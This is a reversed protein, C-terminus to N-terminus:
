QRRRPADPVLLIRGRLLRRRTEDSVLIQNIASPLEYRVRCRIAFAVVEFPPGVVDKPPLSRSPDNGIASVIGSVRDLHENLFYVRRNGGLLLFAVACFFTLAVCDQHELPRSHTM